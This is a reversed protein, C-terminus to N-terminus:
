FKETYEKFNNIVDQCWQKQMNESDTKNSEFYETLKVHDGFDEFRISGIRNDSLKYEILQFNEVKTYIGEFDFSKTKDKSIMVYKFRGKEKLDNEAYPTHWNDFAMNWNQIHKPTIWFDWVKEIPAKIVVEVSIM